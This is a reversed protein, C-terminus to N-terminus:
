DHTCCRVWRRRAPLVRRRAASCELAGRQSSELQTVLAFRTAAMALTMAASFSATASESRLRCSTSCASMCRCASASARSLSFALASAACRADLGMHFRSSSRRRVFSAASCRMLTPLPSRPSRQSAYEGGYQPRKDFADTGAPLLPSSRAPRSCTGAQFIWCSCPAASASAHAHPGRCSPPSDQANRHKTTRTHGGGRRRCCKVDGVTLLAAFRREDLTPPEPATPSSAPSPPLPPEADGVGAM